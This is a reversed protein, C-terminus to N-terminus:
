LSTMSTRPGSRVMVRSSKGLSLYVSRTMLSVRRINGPAGKMPRTTSSSMMKGSKTIGFPDLRAIPYKCRCRLGLYQSSGKFNSGSLNKGSLDRFLCGYM